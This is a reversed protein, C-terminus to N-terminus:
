GAMTGIFMTIFYVPTCVVFLIFVVYNKKGICKGTWVCHHDHGEICVGCMNCHYVKDSELTLCKDCWIKGGNLPATNRTLIGPNLLATTIYLVMELIYVICFGVKLSTSFFQWFTMATYIGFGAIFMIGVIMLYWHPGLTLIVKNNITLVAIHNGVNPKGFYPTLTELATDLTSEEEDLSLNLPTKELSDFPELRVEPM